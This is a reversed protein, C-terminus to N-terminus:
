THIYAEHTYYKPTPSIRIHLWPVGHGHTSIFIQQKPKIQEMKELVKEAILKILEHQQEKKGYTLFSMLHGSHSDYSEINYPIPVVLLTEGSLNEFSTVIKSDTNGILSKLKDSFHKWNTQEFSHTKIVTYEGPKTWNNLSIGPFELLCNPYGTSIISQIFLERTTASHTLDQFFNKFSTRLKFTKFNDSM